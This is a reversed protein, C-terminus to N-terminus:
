SPTEFCLIQCNRWSVLSAIKDCATKLDSDSQTLSLRIFGDAEVGYAIGPVCAIGKELLLSAVKRSQQSIASTNLFLYFTGESDIYHM